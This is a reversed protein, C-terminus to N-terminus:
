AIKFKAHEGIGQVSDFLGNPSIMLLMLTIVFGVIAIVAISKIAEVSKLSYALRGALLTGLLIAGVPHTAGMLGLIVAMILSAMLWRQILICIVAGLVFLEGLAEPRGVLPLHMGAEAMLLVGATFTVLLHQSLTLQSRARSILWIMMVAMVTLTVLRFGAIILFAAQPTAEPM